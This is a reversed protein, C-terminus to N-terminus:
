RKPKYPGLQKTAAEVFSMDIMDDLNANGIILKQATFIAKDEALSKRDVQGNPDLSGVTMEKLVPIPINLARNLTTAVDDANPGALKGAKVADIMYRQGRLYAVMFRKALDNKQTAFQNSYVWLTIEQNPYFVDNRVLVRAVGKQVALTAFPELLMSADIGGNQYALVQAPFGLFTHQVDDYSLNATALAKVVQALVTTGKAPEAIKMGKLDAITKVKGSTLLDTRVMLPSFGYGTRASGRDCVIKLPIGRAVANYLGATGAGGGLDIQDTGLSAVMDAASDFQHLNLALGADKFYGKENAIFLPGDSVSMLVGVNVTALNQARAPRPAILSGAATAAALSRIVHSRRM